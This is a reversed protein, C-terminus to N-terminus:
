PEALVTIAQPLIGIQGDSGVTIIDYIGPQMGSPFNFTVFGVFANSVGTRYPGVM